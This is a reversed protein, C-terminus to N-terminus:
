AVDQLCFSCCAKDCAPTSGKAEAMAPQTFTKLKCEQRGCLQALQVQPYKGTAAVICSGKATVRMCQTVQVM